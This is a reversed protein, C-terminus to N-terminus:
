NGICIKKTIKFIIKRIFNFKERNREGYDIDYIRKLNKYKINECYKKKRIKNGDKNMTRYVENILKICDLCQNRKKQTDKRFNFQSLEKENDCKSCTKYESM